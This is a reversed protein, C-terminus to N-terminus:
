DQFGRVYEWNRRKYSWKWDTKGTRTLIDRPGKGIKSTGRSYKRCLELIVDYYQQSIDGGGM